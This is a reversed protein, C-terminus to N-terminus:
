ASGKDIDMSGSSEAHDVANTLEQSEVRLEDMCSTTVALKRKVEGCGNLDGSKQEVMSGLDVRAVDVVFGGGGLVHGTRPLVHFPSLGIPVVDGAEEDRTSRLGVAM